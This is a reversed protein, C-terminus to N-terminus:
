NKEIIITEEGGITLLTFLLILLAHENEVTGVDEWTNGRKAKVRFKAVSPKASM